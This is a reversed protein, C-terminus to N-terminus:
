DRPPASTGRSEMRLTTVTREAAGAVASHAREVAHVVDNLGGRVTTSMAGPEVSLAPDRLAEVARAVLDAHREGEVVPEVAVEALVEPQDM